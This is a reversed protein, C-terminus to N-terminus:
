NGHCALLQMEVSSKRTPCQLEANTNHLPMEHLTNFEKERNSTEIARALFVAQNIASATAILPM